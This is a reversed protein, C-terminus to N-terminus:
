LLFPATLLFGWGKCGAEVGVANPMMDGTELVWQTYMRSLM